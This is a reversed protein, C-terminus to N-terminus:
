FLHNEQCAQSVSKLQKHMEDSFGDELLRELFYPIFSNNKANGRTVTGSWPCFIFSDGTPSIAQLVRNNLSFITFQEAEVINEVFPVQSTDYFRTSLQFGLLLEQSLLGKERLLSQYKESIKNPLSAVDHHQVERNERFRVERSSLQKTDKKRRDNKSNSGAIVTRDSFFCQVSEDNLEYCFGGKSNKRFRRIWTSPRAECRSELPNLSRFHEVLRKLMDMGSEKKPNFLCRETPEERDIKEALFMPKFRLCEAPLVKPILNRAFFDMKAVEEIDPRLEPEVTLMAMIAGETSPSVRGDLAKVKWELDQFKKEGAKTEVTNKKVDAIGLDFPADGTICHYLLCGLAWIDVGFSKATKGVLLEPAMYIATGKRDRFGKAGIPIQEALGFDAVKVDLTDTLLVNRAKLDCHVIRRSHLYKFAEVVGYLFYRAEAETVTVRRKIFDALTGRSCLELVVIAKNESDFASILKVVNPHDLASQLRCESRFLRLNKPDTKTAVKLACRENTKSSLARYCKAFTGSGMVKELSYSDHTVDDVIVKTIPM